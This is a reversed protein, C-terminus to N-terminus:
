GSNSVKHRLYSVQQKLFSSKTFNIAFNNRNAIEFFIELHELHELKSKSHILLDDLYIKIFEYKGFLNTMTQQFTHPANKLGFPMRLFEWVGNGIAFATFPISEEAVEIQYYGKRLDIQSFWCSDKLQALIEALTPM